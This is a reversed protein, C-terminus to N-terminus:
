WPVLPSRAWVRVRSSARRNKLRDVVVSYWITCERGFTFSDYTTKSKKRERKKKETKLGEKFKGEMKGSKAGITKKGENQKQGISCISRANVKPNGHIKCWALPQSM